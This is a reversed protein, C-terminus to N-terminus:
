KRAKAHSKAKKVQKTKKTSHPHTKGTGHSHAKRHRKDWARCGHPRGLDFPGSIAQTVINKASSAFTVTLQPDVRPEVCLSQEISFQGTITEFPKAANGVCNFAHGPFDGNCSFSDTTIPKGLLNTVLPASDFGSLPIQSQLQYGTIPGNCAIVYQVQQDSSGDEPAGKSLHGLCKYNNPNSDALSRAPNALQLVILGLLALLSWAARSRASQSAHM